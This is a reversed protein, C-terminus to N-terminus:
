SATVPLIGLSPARLIRIAIPSANIPVNINNAMPLSKNNQGYRQMWFVVAMENYQWYTAV